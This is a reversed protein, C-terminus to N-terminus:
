SLPFSYVFSIHASNNTPPRILLGLIVLITANQYQPNEDLTPTNHQLEQLTKFYNLINVIYLTVQSGLKQFISSILM